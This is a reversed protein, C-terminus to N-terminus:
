SNLMQQWRSELFMDAAHGYLTRPSCERTAEMFDFVWPAIHKASFDQALRLWEDAGLCNDMMAERVCAALGDSMLRLEKDIRDVPETAYDDPLLSARRMFTEVDATARTVLMTPMGKGGRRQFQFANEYPYIKRLRGPALYLGTYERNLQAYLSSSAEDGDGGDAIAYFAATKAFRTNAGTECAVADFDSALTGDLMASALPETPFSFLAAHLGFFDSISALNQLDCDAIQVHDNSM